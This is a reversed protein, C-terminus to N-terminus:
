RDRFRWFFGLLAVLLWSWEAWSASVWAVAFSGLFVLPPTLIRRRTRRAAVAGGEVLLLGQRFAHNWLAAWVFGLAALTGAYLMAAERRDGFEALIATPFPLFTVGLLALLNLVLLRDDVRQLGRFARFHALWYSGIVAFSLVFAGYASWQALAHRLDAASTVAGTDPIDLDLVLLTMAIAFVADSFAALRQVDESRVPNVHAFTAEVQTMPQSKTQSSLRGDGIAQEGPRVAQRGSGHDLTTAV